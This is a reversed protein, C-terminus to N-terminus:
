KVYIGFRDAVRQLLDTGIPESATVPLGPQSNEPGFLAIGVLRQAPDHRLLYCIGDFGARAFATAWDQTRQYDPSSHIEATIGWVRASETTCDAVSLPRETEIKALHRVQIEPRPITSFERFVELFCGEPQEAFYCTGLGDPEHLDFRGYGSRSFWL